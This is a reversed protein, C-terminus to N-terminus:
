KEELALQAEVRYRELQSSYGYANFEVEGINRKLRLLDKIAEDYLKFKSLDM